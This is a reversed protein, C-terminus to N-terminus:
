TLLHYMRARRFFMSESIGLLEMARKRSGNARELARKMTMMETNALARELNLDEVIEGESLKFEVALAGSGLIAAPLHQVDVEKFNCNLLAIEISNKLERVNGPWSYAMLAEIAQSTIGVSKNGPTGMALFRAALIPIDQPRDRLAPLHVVVGKIREYLEARFKGQAVLNELDLNTAFVLKVDVKEPKNSGVRVVEREQLARLLKVQIDMPCDGIEDMFLVGGNAAQFKGIKDHTAGTFAGKVHGFLESEALTSTMAAMSMSLFPGGRVTGAFKAIEEKGSGSEGRILVSLSVSDAEIARRVRELDALIRADHTLVEHIRRTPMLAEASVRQKAKEIACRLDNLSVPKLLFDDDIRNRITIAQQATAEGSMVIVPTKLGESAMWEVLSLGNLPSGHFVVDTVIADFTEASLIKEAAEVSNAIRIDFYHKLGIQLTRTIQHDDDVVLLKTKM